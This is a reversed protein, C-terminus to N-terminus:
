SALGELRIVLKGDEAEVPYSTLPKEAPGKVIQGKLDFISHNANTCMLVRRTRIYSLTRNAHTCLRSLAFFEEKGARVVVLDIGREKDVLNAASGEEALCAAKALDISVAEKGIALSEPELNPTMCNTSRRVPDADADHCNCVAGLGLASGVMMERRTM